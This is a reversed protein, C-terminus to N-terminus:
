KKGKWYHEEREDEIGSVKAGAFCFLILLAVSAASAVCMGIIEKMDIAM